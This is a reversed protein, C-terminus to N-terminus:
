VFIIYLLYIQSLEIMKFGYAEGEKRKKNPNHTKFNKKKLLEYVEGNFWTRLSNAFIGRFSVPDGIVRAKEM